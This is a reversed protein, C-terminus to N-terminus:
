IILLTLQTIVIELIMRVLIVAWIVQTISDQESTPLLQQITQALVVQVLRFAMLLVQQIQTDQWLYTFVQSLLVVQVTQM